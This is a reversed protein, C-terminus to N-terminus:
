VGFSSATKEFDILVYLVYKFSRPISHGNRKKVRDITCFLFNTIWLYDLGAQRYLTIRKTKSRRIIIKHKETV